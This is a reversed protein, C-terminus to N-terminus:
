LYWFALSLVTIATQKFLPNQNQPKNPIQKKLIQHNRRHKNHKLTHQKQVFWMQPYFLPPWPPAHAPTICFGSFRGIVAPPFM